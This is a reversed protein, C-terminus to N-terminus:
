EHEPADSWLLAELEDASLSLRAAAAALMEERQESTAYGDALDNVVDFTRLRAPPAGSAGEATRFAFASQLCATLCRALRYDGILVVFQDDSVEARTKGEHAAYWEIAAALRERQSEFERGLLLYPRVDPAGDRSGTRGYSRRLDALAFPM